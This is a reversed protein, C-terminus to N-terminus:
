LNTRFEAKQATKIKVCKCTYNHTKQGYQTEGCSVSVAAIGKSPQLFPQSGAAWGTIHKPLLFAPLNPTYNISKEESFSILIPSARQLVLLSPLNPFYLSTSCSYMKGMKLHLWTPIYLYLSEEVKAVKNIFYYVLGLGRVCQRLQIDYKGFIIPQMGMM